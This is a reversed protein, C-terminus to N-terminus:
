SLSSLCLYRVIRHSAALPDVEDSRSNLAIKPSTRKDGRENQRPQPPRSQSITALQAAVAFQGTAQLRTPLEVFCAPRRM